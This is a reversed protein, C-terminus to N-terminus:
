RSMSKTANLAGFASDSPFLTFTSSCGDTGSPCDEEVFGLNLLARILREAEELSEGDVVRYVGGIANRIGLRYPASAGGRKPATFKLFTMVERDNDLPMVAELLHTRMKEQEM